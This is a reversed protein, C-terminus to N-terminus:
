IKVESIQITPVTDTYNPVDARLADGNAIHPPLFTEMSDFLLYAIAAYPAPAGPQGGGVGYDVSVGKLAAGMKQRVLPIHRNCYYDLDFRSGPQNPYMVTVRIM